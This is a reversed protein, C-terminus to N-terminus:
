CAGLKPCNAEVVCGTGACCCCGAVPESKPPNECVDAGDMAFGASAADGKELYIVFSLVLFQM